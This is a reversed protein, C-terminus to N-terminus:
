ATAPVYAPIHTRGHAKALAARHYGDRLGEEESLLVVPPVNEPCETLGDMLSELRVADGDYSESTLDALTLAAYRRAPVTALTLLMAPNEGRYLDFDILDAAEGLTLTPPWGAAWGNWIEGM